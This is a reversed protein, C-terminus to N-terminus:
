AAAVCRWKTTVTNWIFLVDLRTSIVTTTPLAVTGSAEFTAGWTIARATGNDTISICLIQGDTPTGSLNTTFSTIAVALATVTFLDVNDTNITPTANSAVTGVRKTIRKNTLTNTSSISPIVVGEVALVGGSSRSLTTDSANGLEITTFQPATLSTLIATGGVTPMNTSEIDTFWGKTVRAGTAAISGTMTISQTGLIVTGSFTQNGTFTNAADTRAITASTTPFTMTTSDTGALTLINSVTLKKGTVVVDGFYAASWSAASTGSTLICTITASTSGGMILVANGGSSNITVLGTSNNVITFQHGLALTSAVPLTVTQTTAGTFYQLFTSGVTLVTTGAATAVTTYGGVWNNTTINASSDRLVLTSATAASAVGTGTPIGNLVPTAITPTTGFVLAGTGTEDTVASILNASSPTALFTAVGTGLGTISGVAPTVTTNSAATVLGKANVTVVSAQTASGFTGVNGNVTAFTLASSGPGSATADGTLATIYSGAAQKGNFISWDASTLFGKAGSTAAQGNTYDISIVNTALNFDSALFSNFQLDVGSKGSFNALGGGLNSATNSEGSSVADWSATTGDTTLFEGSHGTQDPLGSGGDDVEQRLCCVAKSLRRLKAYLQTLDQEM